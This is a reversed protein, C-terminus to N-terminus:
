FEFRSTELTSRLCVNESLMKEVGAISQHCLSIQSELMKKFIQLNRLEIGKESYSEIELTAVSSIEMEYVTSAM